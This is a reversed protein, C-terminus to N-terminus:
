SSRKVRSRDEWRQEGLLWVRDTNQESLDEDASDGTYLNLIESPSADDGLLFRWTAGDCVGSEPYGSCAQFTKLASLTGDGFTWWRIEDESPYFGARELAVQLAHVERGGDGEHLVPWDTYALKYVEKHKYEEVVEAGAAAGPESYAASFLEAYASQAAAPQQQSSASSAQPEPEESGASSGGGLSTLGPVNMMLDASLDRTPKLQLDQGLLKAWTAEDTIGTEPLGECCQMTMLASQTGEGFFLDEIDAEGPFYGLDVLGTHLQSVWFLDDAGLILAPPPGRPASQQAAVPETAQEVLRPAPTPAAPSAPPSTPQAAAVPPQAPAAATGNSSSAAASRMNAKLDGLSLSRLGSLVDTTDVAAVAAALDAAYPPLEADSAAQSSPWATSSSSSSSSATPPAPAGNAGGPKMADVVAKVQEAPSLPTPSTASAASSSSPLAMAPEQAALSAQQSSGVYSSPPSPPAPAARGGGEQQSNLKTLAFLLHARLEAAEERLAAETAQWAAREKSFRQQEHDAQELLREYMAAQRQWLEYERALLAEGYPPPTPPSGAPEPGDTHKARAIPVRAHRGLGLPPSSATRLAHSTRLLRPRVRPQCGNGAIAIM